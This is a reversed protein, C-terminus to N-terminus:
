FHKATITKLKSLEKERIMRKITGKGWWPNIIKM